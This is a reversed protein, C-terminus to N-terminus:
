YDFNRISEPSPWYNRPTPFSNRPKVTMITRGKLHRWPGSNERMPARFLAQELSRTLKEERSKLKSIASRLEKEKEARQQKERNGVARGLCMLMDEDCDISCPDM